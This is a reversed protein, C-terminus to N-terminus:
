DIAWFFPLIFALLSHSLFFFQLHFLVAQSFSPLLCIGDWVSPLTEEVQRGAVRRSAVGQGTEQCLGDDNARAPVDEGQNHRPLLYWWDHSGTRRNRDVFPLLVFFHALYFFIFTRAHLWPERCSDLALGNKLKAFLILIVCVLRCTTRPRKLCPRCCSIFRCIYPM